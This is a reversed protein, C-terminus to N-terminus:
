LRKKFNRPSLKSVIKLNNDLDFFAKLQLEQFILLNKKLDPTRNIIITQKIETLKFTRKLVYM